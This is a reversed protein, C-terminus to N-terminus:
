PTPVNHVENNAAGFVDAVGSLTAMNGIYNGGNRLFGWRGNAFATNNVVTVGHQAQFGDRSNNGSSNGRITSGSGVNFGDASFTVTNQEVICRSGVYIGVGTKTVINGRIISTDNAGIGTGGVSNNGIVTMGEVRVNVGDFALNIGHEFNVITGNRITIAERASGASARVASGSGSGAIKFGQFDITIHNDALILCDGTASVNAALEYSGSETLTRCSRIMQQAPAAVSALLVVIPVAIATRNFHREM